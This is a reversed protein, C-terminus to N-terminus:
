TDLPLSPLAHTVSGRGMPRKLVAVPAFFDVGPSYASNTGLVTGTQGNKYYHSYGSGVNATHGAGDTVDTSNSLYNVFHHQVNDMAAEHNHFNSMLRNRADDSNAAIIATQRRSNDIIADGKSKLDQQVAENNIATWERTQAFSSGTRLFAALSKKRREDTQADGSKVTIMQLLPSWTVLDSNQM